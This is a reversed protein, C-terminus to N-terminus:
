DPIRIDQAAQGSIQRANSRAFQAAICEDDKHVHAEVAPSENTEALALPSAWVMVWLASAIRM